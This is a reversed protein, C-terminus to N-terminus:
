FFHYWKRAELLKIRENKNNVLDMAERAIRQADEAAAKLAGVTESYKHLQDHLTKTNTEWYEKCKTHEVELNTLDKQINKKSEKEDKLKITLEDILSDKHSIHINLEKVIEEHKKFGIVSPLKSKTAM